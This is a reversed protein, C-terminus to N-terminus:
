LKTHGPCPGRTPDCSKFLPFSFPPQFRFTIEELTKSDGIVKQQRSLLFCYGKWLERGGKVQGQGEWSAPM